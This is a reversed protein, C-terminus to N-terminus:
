ATIGAAGDLYQLLDHAALEVAKHRWQSARYVCAILGTRHVRRFDGFVFAYRAKTGDEAGDTLGLHWRAYEQWDHSELYANEAAANPQVEGWDSDLVYQRSDILGRAHEVAAGNVDYRAM